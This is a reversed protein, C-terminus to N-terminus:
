SGPPGFGGPLGIEQPPTDGFPTVLSWSDGLGGTNGQIGFGLAGTFTFQSSSLESYSNYQNHDVLTGVPLGFAGSVGFPGLLNFTVHTTVTEQSSNGGVWPLGGTGVQTVDILGGLYLHTTTYPFGYLPVDEAPTAAARQGTGILPHGLLVQAPANVANVLTQRVNAVETNLYQAAGGNLLNAFEDHFAAAKASLAQFQQAHTGFLATIAASVEDAAPAAIATTQAAAAATASRVSSGISQLNGSAASVSDPVVSLLSM